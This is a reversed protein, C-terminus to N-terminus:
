TLADILPRLHKEYHRWRGISNQYIPRRVQASSATPVYRRNEYFKLCSEDWPMGLFELMRRTQGEVDAVVEEYEVDLIPLPLVKKWHAMLRDNQKHFHAAWRLDFSFNNGGAFDTMYCSLCTDRPDRRSHIVRAGPFLMAILGLHMFNAPTKDTVRQAKPSMWRLYSEYQSALANADEVSMRELCNWLSATPVSHRRVASEWLRFIWDREGVGEIQPHSALLQEILSSGSRAMGVIFVPTQTVGTARSLRSLMAPTFFEIFQGILREVLSADYVVQRLSNAREANAFAEDYRGMHDLLNAGAFFLSCQERSSLGKAKPLYDAVLDLAAAAAKRRPAAQAALLVLRTSRYGSRLLRDIIEMAAEYERGADFVAALTVQAEKDGPMLACAAKAHEKAREVQGTLLLVDALAGHAAAFAPNIRIARDFHSRASDLRGLLRFEIAAEHCLEASDPDQRLEDLVRLLAPSTTGIVDDFVPETVSGTRDM